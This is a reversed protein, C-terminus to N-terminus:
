VNPLFVCFYLLIIKMFCYLMNFRQSLISWKIHFFSTCMFLTSRHLSKDKFNEFFFKLIVSASSIAQSVQSQWLFFLFCSWPQTTFANWNMKVSLCGNIQLFNGAICGWIMCERKHSPFLQLKVIFLIYSIMIIGYHFIQWYDWINYFYM